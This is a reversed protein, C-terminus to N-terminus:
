VHQVETRRAKAQSGGQGAPATRKSSSRGWKVVVTEAGIKQSGNFEAFANEADERTDFDVFGISRATLVNVHAVGADDGFLRRLGEEGVMGVAGGVFLTRVTPDAPADLARGAKVSAKRIIKAAVPDNVGYYRDRLNQENADTEGEGPMEHRYPCYVGRTCEGKAYFTCLRALNRGYSPETRRAKEAISDKPTPQAYVKAVEGSAIARDHAAAAYERTAESRAQVVAQRDAAPLALDRVQVPLNYQLDLLCTQCVNKVRACTQCIETKKPRMGHGGPRWSHGVFPRECVKCERGARDELMRVYPNPGLCSECVIPFDGAEVATKSAM